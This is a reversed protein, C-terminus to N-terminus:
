GVLDVLEKEPAGIGPIKSLLFTESARDVYITTPLLVETGKYTHEIYLKYGFLGGISKTRVVRKIRNWRIFYDSHPLFFLLRLGQGNMELGRQPPNHDMKTVFYSFGACLLFYFLLDWSVSGILLSYLFFWGVVCTILIVVWIGFSTLSEGKSEISDRKQFQVIEPPYIIRIKEM